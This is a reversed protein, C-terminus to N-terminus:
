FLPVSGTSVWEGRGADLRVEVVAGGKQFYCRTEDSAGELAVSVNAANYGTTAMNLCAIDTDRDAGRLVDPKATKWVTEGSESGAQSSLVNINADADLYLVSTDVRQLTDGRRAVSFAAIPARKPLTIDPLTTPWPLSFADPRNPSDLDTISVALKNDPTQYFIAYGAAVAIMSYNTSTPAIALHSAHLVTINLPSIRWNNGDPEYKGGIVNRLSSLMGTSSQYITWPWYAGLSGDLDTYLNLRNSSDENVIPNYAENISVGLLRAKFGVYWLEMQPKYMNGWLITSVALRTGARAYSHFSVSSGWCTSDNSPSRLSTDCKSFRLGGQWDQFVLYTQASGDPKRWGAVSLGSGQRILQPRATSNIETNGANGSDGSDEGSGGPDGAQSTPQAASSSNAARSGLVGGLVAALIVVVAIVGGVILWFRQKRGPGGPGTPALRPDSVPTKFHEPYGGYEAYAPASSAAAAQRSPNLYNAPVEPLSRSYRDSVAELGSHSAVELGAPESPNQLNSGYRADM